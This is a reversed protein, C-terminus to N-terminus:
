RTSASAARGGATETPEIAAFAAALDPHPSAAWATTLVKTAKRTSGEDVYAQAALAAPPCSRRARAQEGAEGSRPRPATEGEAHAKRADALSLIADRRKGVDRPLLRAHMSANLTERAGSWDETKSQLDFLTRLMPANDPRLAFAKKALALATDTDGAELKLRM